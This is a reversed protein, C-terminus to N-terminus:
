FSDDVRDRAYQIAYGWAEACRIVVFVAEKRLEADSFHQSCEGIIHEIASSELMADWYGRVEPSSFKASQESQALIRKEMAAAREDVIQGPRKKLKTVKM